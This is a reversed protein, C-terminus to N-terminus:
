IVPDSFFIIGGCIITVLVLIAAPRWFVRDWYTWFQLAVWIVPVFITIWLAREAFPGPVYLLLVATSFVTATLAWIVISTLRPAKFTAGALAIM